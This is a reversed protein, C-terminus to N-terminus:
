VYKSIYLCIYVCAHKGVQMCVCHIRVEMIVHVSKNIDAYMCLHM